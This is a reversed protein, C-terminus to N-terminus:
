KICESTPCGIGPFHMGATKHCLGKIRDLMCWIDVWMYEVTEMAGNSMPVRVPIECVRERYRREGCKVMFGRMEAEGGIIGENSGNLYNLLLNTFEGSPFHDRVM